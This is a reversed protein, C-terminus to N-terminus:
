LELKAKAIARKQYDQYSPLLKSTKLTSFESLDPVEQHCQPCYWYIRQGSVHRLIRASCIPCNSM